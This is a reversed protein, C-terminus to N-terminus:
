FLGNLLEKTKPGISYTRDEIRVIPMIGMLANTVFVEDANMVEEISYYGLNTPIGLAKSINLVYGRMTGELLGCSSDPTYLVGNKIFFINCFVGETVEQNNNLYIGEDFGEQRLAILDEHRLQNDISKIKLDPNRKDLRREILRLHYGKQYQVDRYPFSRYEASFGKEEIYQLKMVEHFEILDLFAEKDLPAQKLYILGKNFRDLHAQLNFIKGEVLRMTEFIGKPM